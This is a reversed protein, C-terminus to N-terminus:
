RIIVTTNVIMLNGTHRKEKKRTGANTEGGKEGM